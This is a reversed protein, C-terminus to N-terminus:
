YNKGYNILFEERDEYAQRELEDWSNDSSKIKEEDLEYLDYCINNEYIEARLEEVREPTWNTVDDFDIEEQVEAELEDYICSYSNMLEISEERGIGYAEKVDDVEIIDFSELGHLGDYMAEAARLLFIM